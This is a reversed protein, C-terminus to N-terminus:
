EAGGQDAAAPQEVTAQDVIEVDPADGGAGQEVRDGDVPVVREEAAVPEEAAEPDEGRALRIWYNPDWEGSRGDVFEQMLEARAAVVADGAVTELQVLQEDVTRRAEDLSTQLTAERTQATSLDARLTTVEAGLEREHVRADALAKRLQANSTTLDAARREQATVQNRLHLSGMLTQFSRTVEWDAAQVLGIAGLRREDEPLLLAPGVIELFSADSYSSATLPIRVVLQDDEEERVQKRSTTTKPSSETPDTSTATGSTVRDVASTDGVKLKKVTRRKEAIEKASPIKFGKMEEERQIQEVHSWLHSERLRAESLVVRWDREQEPLELVRQTREGALLGSSWARNLQNDSAKWFSPIDGPGSPGFLLEGRAFFYLRKWGRDNTKLHNVLQVRDPRVSFNYRGKERDHERLYYTYLIEGLGFEIGHRMSICELTMLVRWSNPMLQSPAIQFHSLVERM